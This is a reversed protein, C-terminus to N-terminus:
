KELLIAMTEEFPGKERLIELAEETTNLAAASSGDRSRGRGSDCLFCPNGSPCGGLPFPTNM